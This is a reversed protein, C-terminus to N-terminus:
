QAKYWNFQTSTHKKHCNACLIRCKKIEELTREWDYGLRVAQSITFKKLSPEIHDFELVRLDSEKCLECTKNSLFRAMNARFEDRLKKRRLKARLLYDNKHKSYHEAYYAQRHQRYCEKCQTHLQGKTKDRFFYESLDKETACKSCIKM